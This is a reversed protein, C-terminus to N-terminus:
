LYRCDSNNALNEGLHFETFSLLIKQPEPLRITWKCNTLMPLGSEKDNYPKPYNPSLIEEPGTIIGGCVAARSSKTKVDKLIKKGAGNRNSHNNNIRLNLNGELENQTIDIPKEGDGGMGYLHKKSLHLITNDRKRRSYKRKYKVIELDAYRLYEESQIIQLARAYELNRGTILQTCTKRYCASNVGGDLLRERPLISGLLKSLLPRKTANTFSMHSNSQHHDPQDFNTQFINQPIALKIPLLPARKRKEPFMNRHQPAFRHTSSAPNIEPLLISHVTDMRKVPSFPKISEPLIVNEFISKSDEPFRIPKTDPVSIQIPKEKVQLAKSYKMWQMPDFIIPKWDGYDYVVNSSFEDKVDSNYSNTGLENINENFHFHKSLNDHPDTTLSDQIEVDSNSYLYHDPHVFPKIVQDDNIAEKESRYTNRPRKSTTVIVLSQNDKLINEEHEVDDATYDQLEELSFEDLFDYDKYHYFQPESQKYGIYNSYFMSDPDYNHHHSQIPVNVDSFPHLEKFTDKNHPSLNRLTTPSDNKIRVKNYRSNVRNEIDNFDQALSYPAFPIRRVDYVSHDGDSRSLISSICHM